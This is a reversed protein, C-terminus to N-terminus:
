TVETGQLHDFWHIMNDLAIKKNIALKITSKLKYKKYSIDTDISVNAFYFKNM